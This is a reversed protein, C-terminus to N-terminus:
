LSKMVRIMMNKNALVFECIRSAFTKVVGDVQMEFFLLFLVDM